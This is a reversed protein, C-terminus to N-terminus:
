VASSTPPCTPAHPAHTQMHTQFHREQTLAYKHRYKPIQHILLSFKQNHHYLKEGPLANVYRY